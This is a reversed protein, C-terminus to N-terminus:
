SLLWIGTVTTIGAAFTALFAFAVPRGVSAGGLSIALVAKMFTNSVAGILVTTTAVRPDLGQKALQATSLTIADVDTAGSVAAAVYMGAAGAYQQAAKSVLLVAAFLLGFRVATSLEVPNTLEVSPAQGDAAARRYLFFGAASGVATMALAPWILSRLLPHYAVAVEVLIRVFMITSALVIAAAATPALDPQKRVRGAFSLTVATSSALGGLLATVALGRGTGWFRSAVYGVFGIGAIFVVMLGVDFPNIAGLPGVAVNPLLPLVLVAVILFKITAYLDDKSVRELVHGLLPKASLLFTVVVALAAVVVVRRSVPEIVGASTALAGLLFTVCISAETTLTRDREKRVREAYSIAVLALVGLLGLPVLWPSLTRGLLSALAGGLALLPYTRIGGLFSSADAEQGPSQERELGILLGAALAIGVSAFPEYAALPDM